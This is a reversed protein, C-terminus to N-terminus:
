SAERHVLFKDRSILPLFDFYNWQALFPKQDFDQVM